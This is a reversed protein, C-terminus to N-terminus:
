EIFDSGSNLCFVHTSSGIGEAHCSRDLRRRPSSHSGWVLRFHAGKAFLGPAGADEVEESFATMELPFIAFVDNSCPWDSVDKSIM